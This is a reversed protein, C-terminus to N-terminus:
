LEQRRPAPRGVARVAEHGPRSARGSGLGARAAACARQAPRGSAPLL